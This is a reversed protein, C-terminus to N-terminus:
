ARVVSFSRERFGLQRKKSKESTRIWSGAYGRALVWSCGLNNGQEKGIIGM